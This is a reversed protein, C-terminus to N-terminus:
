SAVHKLASNIVSVFYSKDDTETEEVFVLLNRLGEITEARNLSTTLKKWCHGCFKIWQSEVWDSIDKGCEKCEM